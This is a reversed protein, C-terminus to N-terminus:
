SLSGQPKYESLYLLALKWYENILNYIVILQM